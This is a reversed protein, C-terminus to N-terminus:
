VRTLSSMKKTSEMPKLSRPVFLGDFHPQTAPLRVTLADTKREDTAPRASAPDDSSLVFLRGPCSRFYRARAPANAIAQRPLRRRPRPHSSGSDAPEIAVEAPMEFQPADNTPSQRGSRVRLATTPGRWSGHWVTVARDQLAARDSASSFRHQLV